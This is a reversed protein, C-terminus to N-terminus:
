GHHTFRLNTTLTITLVAWGEVEITANKGQLANCASDKAEIAIPCDKSDYVLGETRIVANPFGILSVHDGPQGKIHCAGSVIQTQYQGNIMTIPCGDKQYQKMLKLNVLSHDIRGGFGGLIVISEANQQLCYQIAKECDTTNQDEIHILQASPNKNILRLSSEDISDMDGIVVDITGLQQHMGNVAGDCVCCHRNQQLAQFTDLPDFHTNAVILWNRHM